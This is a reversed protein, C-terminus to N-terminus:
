VAESNALRGLRITVRQVGVGYGGPQLGAESNRLTSCQNV